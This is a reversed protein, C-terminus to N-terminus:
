NTSSSATSSLASRVEDVNTVTGEVIVDGNRLERTSILWGRTFRRTKPNCLKVRISGPRTVADVVAFDARYSGPHMIVSVSLLILDGRRPTRDRDIVVGRVVIGSGTHADRAGNTTAYRKQKRIIEQLRALGVPDDDDPPRVRKASPQRAAACGANMPAIGLVRLFLDDEDAEARRGKKPRTASTEFGATM